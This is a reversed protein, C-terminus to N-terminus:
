RGTAMGDGERPTARSGVVAAIQALYLCGVTVAAYAILGGIGYVLVETGTEWIMARITLALWVMWGIIALV